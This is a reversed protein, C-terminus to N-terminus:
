HNNIINCLNDFCSYLEKSKWLSCVPSNIDRGQEAATAFCGGKCLLAFDCSQCGPMNLFNRKKISIIKEVNIKIDPYFEGIIGIENQSMSCIAVKGNPMFTYSPSSLCNCRYQSIGERNDNEFSKLIHRSGPVFNTLNAAKIRTDQQSLNFLADNAIKLQELSISDCGGNLELIFHLQLYPNELWGISQLQNFFETYKKYNNPDFVCMLTVDINNNIAWKIGEITKDYFEPVARRRTLHHDKVGDLSIHLQINKNYLLESYEIVNVGNTTILFKQDNWYEFIAEILNHNEKLLPEGGIISIGSYQKELGFINCYEDYFKDIYKIMDRTMHDSKYQYDKQYCYDCSYNCKYSPIILPKVMQNHTKIKLQYDDNVFDNWLNALRIDNLQGTDIYKRLNVFELKSLYISNMNHFNVIYFGNKEELVYIGSYM